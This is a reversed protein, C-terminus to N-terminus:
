ENLIKDEELNPNLKNIQDISFTLIDENTKDQFESLYFPEGLVIIKRKVNEYLPYIPLDKKM